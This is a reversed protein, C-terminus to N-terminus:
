GVCVCELMDEDGSARSGGRRELDVDEDEVHVDGRSESQCAVSM